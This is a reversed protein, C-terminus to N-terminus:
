FNLFLSCDAAHTFSALLPTGVGSPLASVCDCVTRLPRRMCHGTATRRQSPVLTVLLVPSWAASAPASQSVTECPALGVCQGRCEKARALAFFHAVTCQPTLLQVVELACVAQPSHRNCHWTRAAGSVPTCLARSSVRAMIYSCEPPQHRGVPTFLGFHICTRTAVQSVHLRCGTQRGATCSLVEASRLATGGTQRSGGVVRRGPRRGPRTPEHGARTDM